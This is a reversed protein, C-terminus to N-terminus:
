QINSTNELLDTTEDIHKFIDHQRQNIISMRLDLTQLADKISEVNRMVAGISSELSNFISNRRGHGSTRNNLENQTKMDHEVRHIKATVQRIDKDTNTQLTSLNWDLQDCRFRMKDMERNVQEVNVERENEMQSDPSTRGKILTQNFAFSKHAVEVDDMFESHDDYNGVTKSQNRGRGINNDNDYRDRVYQHLSSNENNLPYPKPSIKKDSHNSSNSRIRDDNNIPLIYSHPSQM